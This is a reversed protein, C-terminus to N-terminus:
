TTDYVLFLDRYPIVVDHTFEDQTVVESVIQPLFDGKTKTTAWTLVQGLTKHKALEKELEAFEKEPLKALNFFKM